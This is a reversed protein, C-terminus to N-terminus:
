RRNEGVVVVNGAVAVDLASFTRSNSISIRSLEM